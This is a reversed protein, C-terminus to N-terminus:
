AGLLLPVVLADIRALDPEEPLASRRREEAVEAHTAAALAELAEFSLAGDRIARLELHDPRRVAMTGDRLLERGMRLLRVLHMAHKTDYGHAAELAERQPNRRPAPQLPAEPLGFRRARHNRLRVLQQHAYGSFTEAVRRSLFRERGAHLERWAPTQHLWDSPDTFLLELAAPNSAVLLRVFKGLEFRVCERHTADTEPLPLGPGSLREDQEPMPVVSLRRALPLRFLGRLDLDSESRSTGQAQSGARALLLTAADLEDLTPLAPTPESPPPTM